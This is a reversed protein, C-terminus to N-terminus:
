LIDNKLIEDLKKDLDEYSVKQTKKKSAPAISEEETVEEKAKPATPTPPAVPTPTEDAPVVPAPASPSAQPADSQQVPKEQLRAEKVENELGLLKGDFRKGFAEQELSQKREAVKPKGVTERRELHHRLLENTLKFERDLKNLEKPECDFEVLFYYGYAEGKIPYALHKRDLNQRYHLIGGYKKILGEIKSFVPELETDAFRGSVITLLEYHNM